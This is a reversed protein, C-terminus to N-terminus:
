NNKAFSLVRHTVYDVNTPEQGKFRARIVVQYSDPILGSPLRLHRVLERAKAPDTMYSAVAWSHESGSTALCLIRRGQIVGPAMTVICHKETWGATTSSDVKDVYEAAEGAKPHLVRIKAGEDVFENTALFHRIQPDTRPKGLFVLHSNRIEDWTLDTSRKLSINSKRTGLQRGLLFAAHLFGFDTYNRTEYLQPLQFLGKIKMLFDSSEVETMENIRYDRVALPGIRVFLRPEYAILIPTAGDLLPQWVAGLEPNWPSGSERPTLRLGSGVLLLTFLVGALVGGGIGAVLRKDLARHVKVLSDPVPPAALVGNRVFRPRHSGKVLEIRVPAHPEETSYLRELRQRLEHVRSRVSSDELTSYGEPRGLADVGIAYETVDAGRGEIEAECVFRLLNKLRASRSLVSSNVAVEIAQLKEETTIQPQQASEM